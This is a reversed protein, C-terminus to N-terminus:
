ERLFVRSPGAKHPQRKINEQNHAQAIHQRLRLSMIFLTLCLNISHITGLLKTGHHAYPNLVIQVGAPLNPM